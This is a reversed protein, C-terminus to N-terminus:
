YGGAARRMERSRRERLYMAAATRDNLVVTEYYRRQDTVRAGGVNRVTDGGRVAGQGMGGLAPTYQMSETHTMVSSGPPLWVMEPGEEGVIALGGAFDRVGGAFQPPSGHTRYYIDITVESPLRDLADKANGAQTYVDGLSGAAEGSVDRVDGMRTDAAELKEILDPTRDIVNGYKTELEGFNVTGDAADAALDSMAEAADEAPIVGEELAQALKPLNDALAISEDDMLGFAEGIDRTATTYAEYGMKEPDLMDILNKGIQAETAGKLSMSLDSAAGAQEALAAAAERIVDMNRGSAQGVADLGSATAGMAEAMGAYRAGYAQMGDSTERLKAAYRANAEATAGIAEINKEALRPVTAMKANWDGMVGVWGKQQETAESTAMRMARIADANQYMVAAREMEYNRTEGVTERYEEVIDNLRLAEEAADALLGVVEAVAPALGKALAAKLDKTNAELREFALAEDDSAGELNRMAKEGEEQVAIFFAQERTLDAHAQQLDKIKTRVNGASIGFTDLRPISQNALLLAFEELSQNADRGMATGLTVAMGAVNELEGATNALGMQMLQNASAMAEAESIAGRTARKMAELRDTAEDAGGSITEFASETRLIEGGLRALEVTAAGAAVVAGATLVRGFMDMTRSARGTKEDTGEAENGLDELADDMSRLAKEADERAKLLIELTAQSGAM